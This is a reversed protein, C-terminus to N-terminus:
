LEAKRIEQDYRLKEKSGDTYQVIHAGNHNTVYLGNRWYQSSEGSELVRWFKVQVFDTAKFESKTM